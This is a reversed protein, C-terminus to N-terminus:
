VKQNGFRAEWETIQEDTIKPFIVGDPLKFTTLQPLTQQFLKLSTPWAWPAHLTTPLGSKLPVTTLPAEVEPFLEMIRAASFPAVPAMARAYLVITNIAINLIAGARAKDTKVVQWPEQQALYENGAVWLERLAEISKRIESNEM